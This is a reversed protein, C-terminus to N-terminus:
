GVKGCIGCHVYDLPQNDGDLATVVNCEHEEPRAVVMSSANEIFAIHIGTTGSFGEFADQLETLEDDTLQHDFGIMITDGPRAVAVFKPDIDTM